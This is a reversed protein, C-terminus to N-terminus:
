AGLMRRALAAARAQEISAANAGDISAKSIQGIQETGAIQEDDVVRFDDLCAQKAGLRAATGDLRQDLTDPRAADDERVQARALRRFGSARDAEGIGEIGFHQTAGPGAAREEFQSEWALRERQELAVAVHR